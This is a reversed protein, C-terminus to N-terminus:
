KLLLTTAEVVPRGVSHYEINKERMAELSFCNRGDFVIPEKMTSFLHIDMEQIEQWETLILAADAGVLAEKVTKAYHIEPPLISKAKDMAVPDYAIVQAGQAVLSETVLVSAAERLDDTNPKFSLGLVAIKMGHLTPFRDMLKHLLLSQQKKNVNIVGKLLEFDYDVAGAIKVLAKTDKPFCSGGYGIGARLFAPGIRSDMGIGRAVHEVNVGVRDCVNAIENIFSIKTALFANAAYKIMEASRCDTVLMPAGFPQNIEKMVKAAKESNAGIVIRDANFSDELATGEKLFEPNSVVEITLESPILKLMLKQLRDNTGVPVTSKVVVIIDRKAQAAIMRAAAEVQSLDASGDALEPTGVAIYIVKSDATVNTTFFLRNHAMNKVMLESLGPEYIPSVGKKMQEVKEEDIDICTVTHGIEALSVATVLGVYGAGIVTIEM